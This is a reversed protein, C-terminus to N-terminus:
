VCTKSISSGSEVMTWIKQPSYYVYSASISRQEILWLIYWIIDRPMTSIDILIKQYNGINSDISNLVDHWNKAPEDFNLKVPLFIIDKKMCMAKIVGMNRKSREAYADFYFVLAGSVRSNKLNCGFGARFRNEWSAFTILLTENMMGSDGKNIMMIQQLAEENQRMGFPALLYPFEQM